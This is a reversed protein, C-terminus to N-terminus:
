KFILPPLLGPLEAQPFASGGERLHFLSSPPCSLLAPNPSSVRAHWRCHITTVHEAMQDSKRIGCLLDHEKQGKCLFSFVETGTERTSTSAFNM